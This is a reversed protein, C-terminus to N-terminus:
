IKEVIHKEEYESDIIYMKMKVGGGGKEGREGCHWLYKEYDLDIYM